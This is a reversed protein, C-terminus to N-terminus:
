RIVVPGKGLATKIQEKVEQVWVDIDDETKFTCRPLDITQTKPELSKAALERAKSFRNSLADIRDSWSNIPYKKLAKLLEDHTGVTIEPIDTIDCKILLQEREDESLEKWSSDAELQHKQKALEDAYRKQQAMLEKRLVDELSKVLPQILDPEALLLRQHEITEAQQRAEQVAKMEGAHRLLEQLSGWSPRRGEIREALNNWYDIAQTLEDKRNYLSLLQENGVELRIEEM